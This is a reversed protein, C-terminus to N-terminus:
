ISITSSSFNQNGIMQVCPVTRLCKQKRASGPCVKKLKKVFKRKFADFKFQHKDKNERVCILQKHHTKRVKSNKQFYDFWLLRLEQINELHSWRSAIIEFKNFKKITKCEMVKLWFVFHVTMDDAKSQSSSCNKWHIEELNWFCNRLNMSRLLWSCIKKVIKKTKKENIGSNM